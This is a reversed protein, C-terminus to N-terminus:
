RLFDLLSPKIVQSASQLAAEFAHQLRAFDSYAALADADEIRSRQGLARDAIVELADAAVQGANLRAGVEARFALVQDIASDLRGIQAHLGSTNTQGLTRVESPEGVHTSGTFDLDAASITLDGAGTTLNTLTIDTFNSAGANLTGDANFEFTGQPAVQYLSAASGGSIENANALVRYTFTTAGTKAFLFTLDHGRGLSDFVSVATSFDADALFASPSAESGVADAQTFGTGVAISSDLNVALNLSNAPVSGELVAELDQLVDFVGVGGPLGAGQFVKNGTLNVAVTSSSSTQVRIEGADGRYAVGNAGAEFPAQGNLFGGFIFRNDIKTNSLSFTQLFIQHIEKAAARRETASNTDSVMALALEKARTLGEVVDALASDTQELFPQGTDINRKYQIVSAEFSRLELVRAAGVPDDSLRNIRRGSTVIEQAQALRRFAQQLGEQTQTALSQQTIRM